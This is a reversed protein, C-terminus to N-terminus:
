PAEDTQPSVVESTVPLNRLSSLEQDKQRIEKTMAKIERRLHFRELAGYLGAIIVGLLFTVVAMFYLSIFGTHASWVKLDLGFQVETSLAEHNQVALIVVLLLFLIVFLAKLHKM